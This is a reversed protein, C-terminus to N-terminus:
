KQYEEYVKRGKRVFPFKVIKAPIRKNRIEVFLSMSDKPVRALGISRSLTPPFRVM